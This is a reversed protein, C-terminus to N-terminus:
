RKLVGCVGDLRGGSGSKMRFGLVRVDGLVWM